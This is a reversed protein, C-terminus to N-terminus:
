AWVEVSQAWHGYNSPSYWFGTDPDQVYGVRCGWTLHAASGCMQCNLVMNFPEDWDDVIRMIQGSGSERMPFEEDSNNDNIIIPNLWTGLPPPIPLPKPSSESKPYQFSSSLSTPSIPPTFKRQSCDPNPLNQWFHQQLWKCSKEKILQDLIITAKAEQIWIEWEMCQITSHLHDLTMLWHLAMQGDVLWTWDAFTQCNDLLTMIIELNHTQHSQDNHNLSTEFSNSFSSDSSINTASNNSFSVTSWSSSSTM